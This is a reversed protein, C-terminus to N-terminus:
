SFARRQIRFDQILVKRALIQRQTMDVVLFIRDFDAFGTVKLFV